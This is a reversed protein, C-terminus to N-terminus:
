RTVFTGYEMDRRAKEWLRRHELADKASVFLSALSPINCVDCHGTVRRLNPSPHREYKAAKAGHPWFKRAHSDCLLLAKGLAILDDVQAAGSTFRNKRYETAALEAQKIQQPSYDQRVLIEVM